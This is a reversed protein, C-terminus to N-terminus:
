APDSGYVIATRRENLTPIYRNEEIHHFHFGLREMVQRSADNGEYYDAWVRRM